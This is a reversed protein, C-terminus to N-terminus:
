IEYRLKYAYVCVEATLGLKGKYLDPVVALAGTTNAVHQAHKKIQRDVGWFEQLM